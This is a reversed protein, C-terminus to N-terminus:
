DEKNVRRRLESLNTQGNIIFSLGRGWMRQTLPINEMVEDGTANNAIDKRVKKNIELLEYVAQRGKYGSGNCHECGKEKYLKFKGRIDEINLNSDLIEIDLTKKWEENEESSMKSVSELLTSHIEKITKESEEKNMEEKCHICLKKLLRQALIGLAVDALAGMNVGMESLRTIARSASNTHLTTWVLHGTNSLQLAADATSKDRVEGLLGIDIDNRLLGKFFTQWKQGETKNAEEKRSIEHQNWAGFHYEVPNEVTHIAMKVPDIRKLLSYLTTTKGSGTPGTILVLGASKETLDILKERTDKDFGIAEISATNSRSDLIRFVAAEGRVTKSLQVRFRYRDSVEKMEEPTNYSAERTDTINENIQGNQKIIQIIREFHEKTLACFEFLDGDIRFKIMATQNLPIFHIDSVGSYCAHKLLSNLFDAPANSVSNKRFVELKAMVEEKTKSFVKLFTNEITEQSAFVAEKKINNYNYGQFDRSIDNLQNFESVAIYLKNEEKDYKIPVMKRSSFKSLNDFDPFDQPTLGDVELSNIYKKNYAISMAEAVTESEPFGVERIVDIFPQNSIKKHELLVNIHQENVGLERFANILDDQRKDKSSSLNKNSKGINFDM